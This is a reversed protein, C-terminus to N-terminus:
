ARRYLLDFYERGPTSNSFKDKRVLKFGLPMLFATLDGVRACGIYSEFDAAETKIFNITRLTEPAGKLVLLESGQTDLVLAQYSGPDLGYKKLLSDLTISRLTVDRLFHIDPWLEVHDAFQLISSSAGGNNAVHFIYEVDDEDTVLHNVATQRSFRKINEGLSKFVDPLPEVWLVGLNRNAYLDREQGVNAGVHIIGDVEGLFADPNDITLLIKRYLSHFRYSIATALGIPGKQKIKSWLITLM